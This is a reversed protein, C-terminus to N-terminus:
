QHLLSGGLSLTSFLAEAVTLRCHPQHREGSPFSSSHGANM